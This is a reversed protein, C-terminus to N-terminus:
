YIILNKKKLKQGHRAAQLIKTGPGPISGLGCCHFHRTRVVPDSPFEGFEDM